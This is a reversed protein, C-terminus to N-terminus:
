VGGSFLGILYDFLGSWLFKKVGWLLIWAIMPSIDIGGLPPIVKQIPRLIPRTVADLFRSFQYVYRNRLNVVDFAVLWSLIANAVIALILLGLINDGVFGIFQLIHVM